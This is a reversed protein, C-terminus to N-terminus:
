TPFEQILNLHKIRDGSGATCPRSTPSQGPPRGRARHCSSAAQRSVPKGPKKMKPEVKKM